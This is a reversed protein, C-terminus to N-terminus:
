AAIDDSRQVSLPRTGESTPDLHAFRLQAWDLDIFACSSLHPSQCELIANIPGGLLTSAALGSLAKPGDKMQRIWPLAPNM